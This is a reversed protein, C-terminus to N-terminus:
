TGSELPVVTIFASFRVFDSTNHTLLKRINYTQMTAVINADHIQKGGISVQQLLGLLKETVRPGDKAIHFHNEFFRVREILTSIPRPNTFRQPRSLVALFERLIQRSIWLEIGREYRTEIAALAADHVPSEAVNAYVLINTDLFVPEGVGNVM